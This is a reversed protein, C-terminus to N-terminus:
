LLTSMERERIRAPCVRSLIAQSVVGGQSGEKGRGGERGGWEGVKSVELWLVVFLFPTELDITVVVGSGSLM